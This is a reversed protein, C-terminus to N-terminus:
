PNRLVAAARERCRSKLREAWRASHKRKRGQTGRETPAARHIEGERRGGPARTLVRIVPAVERAAQIIKLSVDAKPVTVVLYVASTIGAARLIDAHTADGFLAQQGRQQLELVPDVNTEVITPNIGFEALLRTVTRGVPGYGVVLAGPEGIQEAAV